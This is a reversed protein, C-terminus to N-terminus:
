VPTALLEGLHKDVQSAYEPGIGFLALHGGIDQIVRFESNPIM